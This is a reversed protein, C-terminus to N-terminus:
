THHITDKIVNAFKGTWVTDSVADKLATLCMV